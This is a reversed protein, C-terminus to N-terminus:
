RLHLDGRDRGDAATGEPARGSELTAPRLQDEHGWSVGLFPAGTSTLPEGDLDVLQAYGGVTVEAAAVGDVSRVVELLESPVRGREITASGASGLSSEARVSVDTGATIDTFLQDVSRRLTDSVVFSGVVFGVGMVVAFTTMLFRLKHALANRLSLRLM